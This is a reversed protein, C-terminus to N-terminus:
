LYQKWFHEHLSGFFAINKVAHLHELQHWIDASDPAFHTENLADIDLGAVNPGAGTPPPLGIGQVIVVLANHEPMELVLRTSYQSLSQPLSPPVKPGATFVEDLDVNDEPPLAIHNIYRTGLRVVERPAFLDVYIPWLQRLTASLQDWSTYPALRSVALGDRKAHVVTKKDTSELRVGVVSSTIRAEVEAADELKISPAIFRINSHGPYENSLRDRFAHYAGDPFTTASAVRLEVTAEAIPANKLHPFGQETM